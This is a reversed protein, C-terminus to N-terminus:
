QSLYLGHQVIYDEVPPPVLYRISRGNSVRTRIDSASHGLAPVDVFIFRQAQGPFQEALWNRDPPAYGLRPVVCVQALELIRNPSRWNPLVRAAEASMIFVYGREPDEVALQELTDVSYSPGGREVEIRSLMFNPNDAVALEVMALRHEAESVTTASKHVPEAAPVFLVKELGLQERAQEAIALHAYHIPDFTGGLIGCRRATL